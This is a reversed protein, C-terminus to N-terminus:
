FILGKLDLPVFDRGICTVNREAAKSQVTGLRAFIVQDISQHIVDLLLQQMEVEDQVTLQCLFVSYQVHTGYGRVIKYVKRWRKADSIDYSVLVYRRM